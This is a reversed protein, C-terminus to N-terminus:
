NGVQREDTLLLHSSLLDQLTHATQKSITALARGEESAASTAPRRIGCQIAPAPLLAQNRFAEPAMAGPKPLLAPLNNHQAKRCARQATHIGHVDTRM